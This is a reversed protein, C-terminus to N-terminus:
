IRSINDEKKTSTGWLRASLIDFHADYGKGFSNKIVEIVPDGDLNHSAMGSVNEMIFYDPKFEKVYKVFEYFLRNRPDDLFRHEFNKQAYEGKGKKILDM